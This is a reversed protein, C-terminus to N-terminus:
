AGKRLFQWCSKPLLFENGIMNTVIVNFCYSFEEMVAELVAHLAAGMRYCCCPPCGGRRMATCLSGLVSM